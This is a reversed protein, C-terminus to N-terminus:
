KVTVDYENCLQDLVHAERKAYLEAAKIEDEEDAPKDAVILQRAKDQLTHYRNIFQKIAAKKQGQVYISDTGLVVANSSRDEPLRKSSNGPVSNDQQEFDEEDGRIKDKAIEEKQLKDALAGTIVPSDDKGKKKDAKGKRHEALANTMKLEGSDIRDQIDKPLEAAVTIYNTVTQRSIGQFLDAIQDHTLNYPEQELSLFYFCKQMTTFPLTDNTYYMKKKRELDTTGPPNMLVVVEAVPEGNPYTDRGTAILHNMARTRREGNTIYFNGDAHFDGLIPEAPGNAAFIKDALDPIMLITNWMEESMGEPKIRANFRDPRIKIRNLDVKRLWDTNKSHERILNRPATNGEIAFLVRQQADTKKSTSM